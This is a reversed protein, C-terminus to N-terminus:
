EFTRPRAPATLAICLCSVAIMALILPPRVAPPMLWFFSAATGIFLAFTTIGFALGPNQPLRAAVVCLTVATTVNFLLLGACCLVIDGNGFALLPASLILSVCATSRAGFRDALIGGLFKGAFVCLAPLVTLFATTKWPIPNYAGVAARVVISFACLYIVADSRRVRVPNWAFVAEYPRARHRCFVLLLVICGLLGAAVAWPPLFAFKGSLTGLAVGVAGFSIFIGSRAFKGGANVLSDIGGGVHFLANGAACLSMRAWPDVPALVGSAVLVCGAVAYVGHAAKLRDTAYGLPVQLAFAVADYFLFGVSIQGLSKVGQYFCGMLVTFCAFDVAFHSLCYIALTIRREMHSWERKYTNEHNKDEHFIIKTHTSCYQNYCIFLPFYIVATFV